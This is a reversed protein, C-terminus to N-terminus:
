EVFSTREIEHKEVGLCLQPDPNISDSYPDPDLKGLSDLDPIRIGDPDLTKIDLV